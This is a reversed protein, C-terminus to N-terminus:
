GNNNWRGPKPGPWVSLVKLAMKGPCVSSTSKLSSYRSLCGSVRWCNGEDAIRAGLASYARFAARADASDLPQEIISEGQALAAIAVARITHSKSGPIEATGNLTSGDVLLKM